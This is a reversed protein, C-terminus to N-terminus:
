KKTQLHDWGKPLKDKFGDSRILTLNKKKDLMKGIITFDNFNNKLENIKDYNITFLLEFDEGGSLACYYPKLNIKKEIELVDKHVPLKDEYIIAGLKSQTAIHKTESGIGDSVDIMANVLPSIIKSAELRSIPELHKKFIYNTIKINRKLAQYGASSGGVQGTVCILDNKKAQSRLSLNKKNAIGLMTISIMAIEGHTTDGGILTVKYKQCVEQIGKYVEQIWKTKTKPTLVISILAYTPLGGMAAIDSINVEISKKGIQQPTSWTCNFHDNEVLTDVTLLQFNNEDIKIVATDDGIGKFIQHFTPFKKTLTEILEFETM